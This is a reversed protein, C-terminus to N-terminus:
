IGQEGDLGTRLKESKLYLNVYDLLEEDGKPMLRGAVRIVQSMLSAKEEEAPIEFYGEPDMVQQCLFLLARVTLILEAHDNVYFYSVEFKNTLLSHPKLTPHYDKAHYKLTNILQEENPNM